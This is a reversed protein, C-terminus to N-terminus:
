RRMTKVVNILRTIVAVCFQVGVHMVIAADGPRADCREDFSAFDIINLGKSLEIGCGYRDGIGMRM